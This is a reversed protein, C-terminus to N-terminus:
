CYYDTIIRIKGLEDIVLAGLHTYSVAIVLDSRKIARRPVLGGFNSRNMYGDEDPPTVVFTTVNPKRADMWLSLQNLHVPIYQATKWELCMREVPGVFPTEIQFHERYQPQMYDYLKLALGLCITVNKLEDARNSLAVSFDHPICTGGSVMIVDNSRILKAADSADMLKAQYEDKWNAFKTSREPLRQETIAM